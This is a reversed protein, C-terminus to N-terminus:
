GDQEPSRFQLIEVKIPFTETAERAQRRTVREKIAFLGDINADLLEVVEEWGERDVVLPTRSLHHDNPDMITGSQIAEEVDRGMLRLIETVVVLKQDYGLEEWDDNDIQVRPAARYLREAVRGGRAPDVSVLEVCELRRLVDLHYCVNNLPEGLREAVERPTGAKEALSALVRHRTPHEM